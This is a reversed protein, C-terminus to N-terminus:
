PSISPNLLSIATLSFLRHNTWNTLGFNSIHATVSLDPVLRTYMWTYHSRYLVFNIYTMTTCCPNTNYTATFILSNMSEPNTTFTMLTQNWKPSVQTNWSIDCSATLYQYTNLFLLFRFVMWYKDSYYHHLAKSQTHWLGSLSAHHASLYCTTKPSLGRNIVLM